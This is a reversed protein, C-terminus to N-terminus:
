KHKYIVPEGNLHSIETSTLNEISVDVACYNDMYYQNGCQYYLKTPTNNTTLITVYAGSSGATGHTTVGDICSNTKDVDYYFWLPHGTNSPDYQSFTYTEGVKLLHYRYFLIWM